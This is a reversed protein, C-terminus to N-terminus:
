EQINQKEEEGTRLSDALRHKSSCENMLNYMILQFSVLNEESIALGGTRM